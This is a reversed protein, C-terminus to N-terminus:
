RGRAAKIEQATVIRTGRAPHEVAEVLAAVMQDLTVLDLRRASERTRPLRKLVAYVPLLAYAWRHGPGLIYWPRLITAPLGSADIAAEGQARAEVFARMVPAPQAVSVYVFHRVAALRAAELAARVSVLDVGLFQRAKSPNPHAVGVLHVLTDAPVVASAFSTVDLAQGQVVVAGAPVRDESGPRSLARVRHGRAVLAAALPRGLYGTSGTVFVDHCPGTPM